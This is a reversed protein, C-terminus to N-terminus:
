KRESRLFHIHWRLFLMGGIYVAPSYWLKWGTYTIYRFHLALAENLLSFPVVILCLYGIFAKQRSPMFNLFIVGFAPSLLAEFILVQWDVDPTGQIYLRCLLVFFFDIYLTLGAMFGWTIYIEPRTLRKPMLWVILLVIVTEISPFWYM